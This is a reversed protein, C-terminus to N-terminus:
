MWGRAFVRGLHRSHAFSGLAVILNTAIIQHKTSPSPSVVLEGDIIERKVGDDPFLLYDEYTLKRRM